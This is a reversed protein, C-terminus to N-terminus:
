TAAIPSDISPPTSGRRWGTGSSAECRSPAPSIFPPRKDPHARAADRPHDQQPGTTGSAQITMDESLGSPRAPRRARRADGKLGVRRSSSPGTRPHWRCRRSRRTLRIMAAPRTSASRPPAPAAERAVTEGAALEAALVVDREPCEFACPASRRPRQQRQEHDEAAGPRSPVVHPSITAVQSKLRGNAIQIM